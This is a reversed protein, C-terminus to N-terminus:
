SEKTLTSPEPMTETDEELSSEESDPNETSEEVGASGKTFNRGIRYFKMIDRGCIRELDTIDIDPNVAIVAMFGLYMQLSNDTEAVNISVTGLQSAKSRARTDAEVFQDGTIKEIDYSLEKRAVGNIEIPQSLKIKEIM